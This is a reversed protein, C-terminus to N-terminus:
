SSTERIVIKLFLLFLNTWFKAKQKVEPSKKKLLM